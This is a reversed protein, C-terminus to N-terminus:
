KKLKEWGPYGPYSEAMSMDVLQDYVVPNQILKDENM